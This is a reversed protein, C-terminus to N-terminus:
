RSDHLHCVRNKELSKAQYMAQDAFRILENKRSVPKGTLGLEQYSAVGISATIQGSIKLPGEAEIGLDIELVATEIRHRIQEALELAGELDTEPALIVFEDGGYRAVTGTGHPVTSALLLGIEQLTQSGALHGHVDNVEKFHDLDIFILCLDRDRRDTREIEATLRQNFFRDNYLGTLDDRKALERYRNADLVNQLSTSIYSAFMQLLQLEQEVFCTRDRHNILELVGCTSRGIQIPVSIVSRTTHRTLKDFGDHFHQDRTVDSSLYPRGTVYTRGAIGHDARLRQGVLGRAAEGFCAVFVLENEEPRRSRQIKLVPDDILVSGSEAPVFQSTIRLIEEFLMALSLQAPLNALHRHRYLLKGIEADDLTWTNM